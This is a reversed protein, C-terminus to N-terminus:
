RKFRLKEVEIRYFGPVLNARASRLGAVSFSFRLPLLADCTEPRAIQFGQAYIM